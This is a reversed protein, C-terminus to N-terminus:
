SEAEGHGFLEPLRDVLAAPVNETVVQLGQFHAGRALLLDQESQPAALFRELPVSMTFALPEATM